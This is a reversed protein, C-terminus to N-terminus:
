LELGADFLVTKAREIEPADEQGEALTGEGVAWDMTPYISEWAAGWDDGEGAARAMEMAWQAMPLVGQLALAVESPAPVGKSWGELALANGRVREILTTYTSALAGTEEADFGQLFVHLDCLDNFTERVCEAQVAIVARARELSLDTTIGLFKAKEAGEADLIEWALPDIIRAIRETPTM